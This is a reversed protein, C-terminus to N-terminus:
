SPKGGKPVFPGGAEALVTKARALGTHWTDVYEVDDARRFFRTVTSGVFRIAAAPSVTIVKIANDQGIVQNARRFDVPFRANAEMDLVLVFQLENHSASVDKLHRHAELIEESTIQGSWHSRYIGPEIRDLVIPM